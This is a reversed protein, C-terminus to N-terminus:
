DVIPCGTLVVVAVSLKRDFRTLPLLNPMTSEGEAPMIQLDCLGVSSAVIVFLARTV